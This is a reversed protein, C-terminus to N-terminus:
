AVVETPKIKQMIIWLCIGFLLIFIILSLWPSTEFVLKQGFLVSGLQKMNAQVSMLGSAALKSLISRLIETFMLIAFFAVSASRGNISLSSLALIMLSLLSVTMFTYALSSFPVWYYNSLFVMDQSFALRMLFLLLAPVLTILAGFFGLICSKGILYDWFSVPKSFYLNLAKLRKDNAILGGGAFVLMLMLFFFQKEIFGFFFGPNIQLSKALEMIAANEAFRTILFIQIARVIFPIYSLFLLIMIGKSWLLSVGTKAIVWWTLPRAKLQGHWPRYAQEYIPM